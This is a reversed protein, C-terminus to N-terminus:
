KCSQTSPYYYLCDKNTNIKDFIGKAARSINARLSKVESDSLAVAEKAHIRYGGTESPILFQNLAERKPKDQGDRKLSWLRDFEDKFGKYISSYEANKYIVMNDFQNHEANKSINFSGALLVTGQGTINYDILIYKHHNLLWYKPSPAHSYYKFRVPAEKNQNGELKKWDEIFQPSMEKNNPKSKYEQNDVALQVIVGRKVANILADSVERINFHNLSLYISSKANNIAKILLDRVVWTQEGKSDLRARLSIYKGTKYDASSEVNNKINFNMSSSYLVPDGASPRNIVVEGEANKYDELADANNENSTIMDKSSNWLVTFENSFDKILANIFSANNDSKEHFIFAESYKSKAGESLNASSNVLQNDDVILFKEHMNQMAIKVEAGATELKQVKSIINPEAALPPHLVIRVKAGNKLAMMMAKDIEADSWSYITMHVYSKAGRILEYMRNFAKDGQTPSFLAYPLTTNAQSLTSVLLILFIFLSHKM